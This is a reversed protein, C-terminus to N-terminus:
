RWKSGNGQRRGTPTLYMLASSALPSSTTTFTCRGPNCDSNVMSKAMRFPMDVIELIVGGPGPAAVPNADVLLATADEPLLDVIQILTAIGVGKSAVETANIPTFTGLIQRRVEERARVRSYIGPM